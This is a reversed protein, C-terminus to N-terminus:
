WLLKSVMSRSCISLVVPAAYQAMSVDLMCSSREWNCLRFERYRGHRGNGLGGKTKYNTKRGRNCYINSAVLFIERYICDRGHTNTWIRLSDYDYSRDGSHTYFMTKHVLSAECMHSCFESHMETYKPVIDEIFIFAHQHTKLEILSHRFVQEWLLISRALSHCINIKKHSNALLHKLMPCGNEELYMVLYPCTQIGIYQGWDM